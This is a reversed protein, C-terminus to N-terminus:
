FKFFMVIQSLTIVGLGAWMFSESGSGLSLYLLVFAIAVFIVSFLKQGIVNDKKVEKVPTEQIRKEAVENVSM